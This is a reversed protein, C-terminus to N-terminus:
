FSTTSTPPGTSEPAALAERQQALALQAATHIFLFQDPTQVLGARQERLEVLLPGIAPSSGAELSALVLEEMVLVGTRGIGASCHVVVPCPIAAPVHRRAEKLRDIFSLFEAPNSPVGHDPWTTYHLHWLARREGTKSDRLQLARCVYSEHTQTQLLTVRLHGFNIAYDEGETSPWYCACKKAGGEVLNTLMVVIRAHQEWIMTWFDVLTSDLPGQACVYWYDRGAMKKRVHSANIYDAEQALHVRTDDYPKVNSYRNKSQNVSQNAADYSAGAKAKNLSKFEVLCAPPEGAVAQALHHQQSVHLEGTARNIAKMEMAAPDKFDSHAVVVTSAAIPVNPVEPSEDIDQWDFLTHERSLSSVPVIPKGDEAADYSRNRRRHRTVWVAVVILLM